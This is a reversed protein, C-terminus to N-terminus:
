LELIDNIKNSIHKNRALLYIKISILANKTLTIGKVSGTSAVGVKYNTKLDTLIQNFLNNLANLVGLIIKFRNVQETTPPGSLITYGPGPPLALASNYSYNVTGIVGGSSDVPQISMYNFMFQKAKTDTNLYTNINTLEDVTLLRPIPKINTQVNNYLNNKLFNFMGVEKQFTTIVPETTTTTTVGTATDTVATTTTTELTPATTTTFEGTATTTYAGAPIFTKSTTIETTTTGTTGTTDTTDTTDTTTPTTTAPETTVTTITNVGAIPTSIGYTRTNPDQKPTRGGSVGLLPAGFFSRNTYYWSYLILIVGFVLVFLLSTDM